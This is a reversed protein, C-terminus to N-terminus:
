FGYVTRTNERCNKFVEETSVGKLEAIREAVHVVHGPHAVRGRCPEPAMYPGDTELLLRDLPTERVVEQVERANRFTVVGTFGLCLRPFHALLERAMSLSSTFCHVHVPHSAPLHEKMLELTDEEANRTHVVLPMGAKVALELQRSFVRRQMAIVEPKKLKGRTTKDFYDLGCEGWAVVKENGMLEWLKEEVSDSWGGASLPHIGFAGHVGEHALFAVGADLTDASCGVHVCGEFAEMPGELSARWGKFGPKRSRPPPQGAERAKRVDQEFERALRPLIM